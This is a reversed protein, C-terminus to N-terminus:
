NSKLNSASQIQPEEFADGQRGPETPRCWNDEGGGTAGGAQAVEGHGGPM